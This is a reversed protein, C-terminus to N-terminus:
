RKLTIHGTFKQGGIEIVYWYDDSPLLTGDLTGDWSFAANETYKILKGHRNFVCVKSSSYFEIDKLQFTDHFGDNNPTFFQPIYFHLYPLSVVADCRKEKAYITYLGGNRNNFVPSTQFVRGDISYEFNGREAVNVLISRGNSEPQELIPNHIQKVLVNKIVKCARNTVEVTYLGPQTVVITESTEGTNWLYTTTLINSNASIPIKTNECLEVEEDVVNPIKSYVVRVPTRTISRCNGTETVAEAYYTGSNGNPNFNTSNSKLLNGLVPADYWNVTIGLPVYVTLPTADDECLELDANALPAEPLESVTITYTESITNCLTNSINIIDEAVKVRYFTTSYLLPTTFTNSTEGTIDVWDIGNTSEQWQFVHSSYSSFDPIAVLERVFPVNTECLDTRTNKSTDEIRIADGCTKFLIDDIALDNGCGGSGNNIIKLIVSTQGALTRFVLAYNEWVPNSVAFINGTDGNALLNSDTSDWIQFKVNIPLGAGGCGYPPLLNLMWSSFEYSTNECLGSITTRYFEGATYSANIILMRGNTDNPTHDSIDHWDFYNSTNSVTYYGDSPNSNVFTYTTTGTPLLANTTGAGFTENFIPDGSNGQCFALQAFCTNNCIFVLVVQLINRKILGYFWLASM